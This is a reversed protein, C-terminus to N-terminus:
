KNWKFDNLHYYTPNVAGINVRSSWAIGTSSHYLPLITNTDVIEKWLETYIDYREKTDTTGVGDDLLSEFKKYDFTGKGDNYNVLYMGFSESHIQQRINNFDFNGDDYYVAIDYDGAYMRETVPSTEGVEVKAIMGCDALSQQIVIATKGKESSEEGYTLITGVDIGAKIDEESYGAELLAKHAAKPDCDFTKFKGDSAKPSTPVYETPMYEYAPTAKGNTAAQIINDKNIAHFVAERVKSNGLINNNTKSQYNIAVFLVDNSKVLEANGDSAAVVNDWDSLPPNTLYDIEGNEYSIVAASDEAILRYEVTEIEPKGQWYNENAKLTLGSSVDYDTVIYPGTAATHPVTGFESGDATVEKFERESYIKVTWFTHAIASYPYKLKFVVTKDDKAEVKDIMSTVYGFRPHGMSYEYSFVVDDATLPDGNQFTADVLKVTYEKGDDSAKVDKALLNYYGGKSEDIGYLGEFVNVWTIKRAEVNTSTAWDLSTVPRQLRIRLVGEQAADSGGGGCGGLLTITMVLSLLVIFIKKM